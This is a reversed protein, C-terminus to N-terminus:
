AKYRKGNQLKAVLYIKETEDSTNLLQWHGLELSGCIKHVSISVKAGSVCDSSNSALVRRKEKQLWIGHCVTNRPLTPGTPHFLGIHLLAVELSLTEGRSRKRKSFGRGTPLQRSIRPSGHKRDYLKPFKIIKCVSRALWSIFYYLKYIAWNWSPRGIGLKLCLNRAILRLM